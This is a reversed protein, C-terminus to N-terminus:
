LKLTGKFKAGFEAVIQGGVSTVADALFPKATQHRKYRGRNQARASDGPNGLELSYAVFWARRNNTPPVNRLSPVGVATFGLNGRGANTFTVDLGGRKAKFLATSGGRLASKVRRSPAKAKASSVAVRKAANLGQRIAARIETSRFRLIEQELENLGEVKTKM